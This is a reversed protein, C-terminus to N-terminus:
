PVRVDDLKFLDEEGLVIQCDGHLINCTKSKALAKLTKVCEEADSVNKSTCMRKDGDNKLPSVLSIVTVSEVQNCRNM